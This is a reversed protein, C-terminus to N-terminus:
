GLAMAIVLLTATLVSVTMTYLPATRPVDTRLTRVSPFHLFSWMAILLLGGLVMGFGLRGGLVAGAIAVAWVCGSFWLEANRDLREEANLGLGAYVGTLLGSVMAAPVIAVELLTM